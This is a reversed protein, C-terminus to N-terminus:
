CQVEPLDDLKGEEKCLLCGAVPPNHKRHTAELPQRKKQAYHSLGEPKTSEDRQKSM